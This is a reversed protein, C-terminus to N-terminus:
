NNSSQVFIADIVGKDEMPEKPDGLQLVFLVTVLENSVSDENEEM